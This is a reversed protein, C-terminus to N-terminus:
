IIINLQERLGDILDPPTVGYNSLLNSKEEGAKAHLYTGAVMANLPTAGQAVFSAILGTLVDGSGGKGLSDNGAPNIFIEGDPSAIISRHGKLLLYIDYKKAFSSAVEIRDSEVESVTMNLLGAMEGPHPTFIVDGSYTRIMELINRSLYLADADVIIPQGTLSYFLRELWKEGEPFRGMGPGVAM